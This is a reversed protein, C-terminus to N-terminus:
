SGSRPDIGPVTHNRVDVIVLGSRNGRKGTNWQSVTTVPMGHKSAAGVVGLQPVDALVKAREEATYRRRPRPQPQQEEQQVNPM